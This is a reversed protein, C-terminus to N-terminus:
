VEKEAWLETKIDQKQKEKRHSQSNSAKVSEGPCEHIM